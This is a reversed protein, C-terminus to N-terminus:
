ISLKSSNDFVLLPFGPKKLYTKRKYIRSLADTTDKPTPGNWKTKLKKGEYTVEYEDKREIPEGDTDGTAIDVVILAYAWLKRGVRDWPLFLIDAQHTNDEVFNYFRPMDKNQEKEPVAFINNIEQKQIFARPVSRDLGFSNYYKEINNM